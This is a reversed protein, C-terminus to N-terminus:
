EGQFPPVARKALFADRAALHDATTLAIAVAQAELAAMEAPGTELSRNLLAKSLGIAVTAGAAYETATATARDRLEAAPVVRDVLGIALAEAADLRRSSFVLDKAAPLGVRRPLHYLAGGDPVLGIGTFACSFTATDAAHIVDCALALSLGIGFAPGNVAAIVPKELAALPLCVTSLLTAMRTRSVSPSTNLDMEAVDAGACFARGAGTLVVARYRPAALETIAEALAAKLGADLANLVEPRRLTLVAVGGDTEFDLGSSM